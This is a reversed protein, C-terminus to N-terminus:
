ARCESWDPAVWTVVGEEYLRNRAMTVGDRYWERYPGHHKGHQYHIEYKLTGDDYWGKQVGHMKGGEYNWESKLTGNEHWTREQPM